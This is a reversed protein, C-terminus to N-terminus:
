DETQQQKSNMSGHSGMRSNVAHRAEEAIIDSEDWEM